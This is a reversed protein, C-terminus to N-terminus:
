KLRHNFEMIAKPEFWGSWPSTGYNWIDSGSWKLLLYYKRKNNMEFQGITNGGPQFYGVEKDDVQNILFNFFDIEDQKKM